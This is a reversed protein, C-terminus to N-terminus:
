LKRDSLGALYEQYAKVAADAIAKEYEIELPPDSFGDAMAAMARDRYQKGIDYLEEDTLIGNEPM